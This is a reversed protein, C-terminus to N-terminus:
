NKGLWEALPMWLREPASDSFWGDLHGFENATEVDDALKVYTVYGDTSAITYLGSDGYGGTAEAYFIPLTIDFLHDDYTLETGDRLKQIGCAMAFGDRIEKLSQWPSASRLFDLYVADSTNRLKAKRDVDFDAAVYHYYSTPAYFESTAAGFYLAAELNSYDELGLAAGLASPEDPATVAWEGLAAVTKGSATATIGMDIQIQYKQYLQCATKKAADNRPLVMAFDVLALGQISRESESMLAEESALALAYQVGRSWGMAITKDSQGSRARIARIVNLAFKIDELHFATDWHDFASLDNSSSINASISNHAPKKRNTNSSLTTEPAVGVWRYDIGWVDFGQEALFIAASPNIFGDPTEGLFAPGFGWADGSLMLVAPGNSVTQPQVHYIFIPFSSERPMVELRDVLVSGVIPLDTTGFFECTLYSREECSQEVAQAYWDHPIGTVDSAIGPSSFSLLILAAINNM